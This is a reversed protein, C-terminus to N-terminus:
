HGNALNTGNSGNIGNSHQRKPHPAIADLALATCLGRNGIATGAAVLKYVWGIEWGGDSCQLTLLTQMDLPDDLDVARCAIIRMALALSDGPAGIREKLREQLLGRLRQQVEPDSCASLFRSLFFLFCEATTYYRTGNSYARNKLVACVWEFTRRM